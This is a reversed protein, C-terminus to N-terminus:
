LFKKCLASNQPHRKLAGKRDDLGVRHLLVDDPLDKRAELLRAQANNGRAHHM